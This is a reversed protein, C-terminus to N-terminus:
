RTRVLDLLRRRRAVAAAACFAVAFCAAMLAGQGLSRRAFVFGVAGGVAQRPSFDARGDRDALSPTDAAVSGPAGAADTPRSGTATISAPGIADSGGVICGGMICADAHREQTVTYVADAEVTALQVISRSRETSDSYVDLQVGPVGRRTTTDGAFLRGQDHVTVEQLREAESQGVAAYAGKPTAKVDPEPFRLRVHAQLAKRVGEALADCAPSSASGTRQRGDHVLESTCGPSTFLVKGAPDTVRVDAITRRWEARGTGPRGHAVASATTEVAGITLTGVGAVSVSIGGSKAAAESKVGETSTRKVRSTFSSDGVVLAEVESRGYRALGRSEFERLSCHVEARGVPSEEPPVDVGEGGDLCSASGYPWQPLMPNDRLFQRTNTDLAAPESAASAGAAQLTTGSVRALTVARSIPSAPPAEVPPDVESAPPPGRRILEPSVLSPDYLPVAGTVVAIDGVRTVRTGFGSADGTFGVYTETTEPVGDTQADYDVFATAPASTAHDRVVLLDPYSAPSAYLLRQTLPDVAINSTTGLEGTVFVGNQPPTARGDAALLWANPTERSGSWGGMYFRGNGADIGSKSNTPYPATIAGVWSKLRVDLVWAGPTLLSLSQLFLRDSGRDYAAVGTAAGNFYQGAIPFFDVDWGQASVMDGAPDIRLVTVGAQGPFTSKLLSGGPTCPFVLASQAVASSTRAILSGMQFSYLPARCERVPRVWKLSLDAANLAVVTGINNVAKSGATYTSQVVAAAESMEGVLYIRDDEPSYDIGGAFYGPLVTTLRTAAVVGTALPITFLVADTSGGGNATLVYLRGRKADLSTTYQNPFNLRESSGYNLKTSSLQRPLPTGLDHVVLRDESGQTITYAKRGAADIAVVAQYVAEAGVRIRGEAEFPAADQAFVSPVRVACALM